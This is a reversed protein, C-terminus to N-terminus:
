IRVSKRIRNINNEAKFNNQLMHKKHKINEFYSTTLGTVQKLQNSLHDVSNYGLINSIIKLSFGKYVILEKVKEAKQFLIYQEITVEEIQSFLKNLYKFETKLKREIFENFDIKKTENLGNVLEIIISKVKSVTRANSREIISLDYEQHAEVTTASLKKKNKLNKFYNPTFGTILKFQVSLNSVSTFGSRHVVEILKFDQYELLGKAKETKQLAIYQEITIANIESFLNNIYAYSRGVRQELYASFQKKTNNNSDKLLEVIANKLKELVHTDNKDLIEYGYGQLISNFRDYLFETLESELEIEGISVYVPVIGIKILGFKVAMICRDCVM